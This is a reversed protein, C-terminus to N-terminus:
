EIFFGGGGDEGFEVLAEGSLDDFFEIGSLAASMEFFHGGVGSGVDEGIQWLLSGIFTRSSIGPWSARSTRSSIANSGQVAPPM